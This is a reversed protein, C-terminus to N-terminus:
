FFLHFSGPDVAMSDVAAGAAVEERGGGGRKKKDSQEAQSFQAKLARIMSISCFKNSVSKMLKIQFSKCRSNEIKNMQIRFHSCHAGRRGFIRHAFTHSHPSTM